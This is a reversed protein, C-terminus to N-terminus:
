EKENYGFCRNLQKKVRYFQVKKPFDALQAANTYTCASRLGGELEQITHEVPGKYPIEMVTGESARYSPMGDYHKEQAFKSSMGYFLKYKKEEIKDTGDPNIENTRFRKTILQGAAEECGALYGGMMVFDCGVGVAKVYDGACTIGGDSCVMGKTKVLSQVCDRIASFQPRGVGTQKRTRCVASSGIGVKVIDAGNLIIDKAKEGTVVNGAMIVAKPFYHRLWNLHEKFGQIYGNPADLCINSCLGTKMVAKLKTFDDHRLGTGIFIYDNTGFRAKNEELFAILQAATYHKHLATFMRHKQLKKAMEFTGTTAMNAAIAPNGEIIKPSWRFRYPKTIRVNFRSNIDSDCPRIMVDDFDLEKGRSIPQPQEM